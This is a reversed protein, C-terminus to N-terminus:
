NDGEKLPRHYFGLLSVLCFIIATIWLIILNHNISDFSGRDLCIKKIASLAWYAPDIKALMKAWHPFTSTPSLSGGLGAMLIGLLNSLALAVNASKAWSVLLIGFFTLAVAFSMIVTILAWWNGNPQFKFLFGSILLVATLQFLQILYAVLAKGTIIETLSTASVQQRNWTNWATEDFFMQIILQVSFFSFLIALGPIVQEAGTAHSYGQVILQTKAAPLMFPAMILPVLIMIFQVTPDALQLRSNLKVVALIQKMKM